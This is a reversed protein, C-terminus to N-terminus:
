SGSSISVSVVSHSTGEILHGYDLEEHPNESPMMRCTFVRPRAEDQLVGRKTKELAEEPVQLRNNMFTLM